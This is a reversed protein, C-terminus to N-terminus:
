KRRGFKGEFISHLSFRAYRKVEIDLRDPIEAHEWLHLFDEVNMTLLWQGKDPRTALVELAVEIGGEQQFPRRLDVVSSAPTRVLGPIYEQLLRLLEREGSTGKARPPNAM